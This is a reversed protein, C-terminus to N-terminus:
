SSRDPRRLVPREDLEKEVYKLADARRLNRLDRYKCGALTGIFYTSRVASAENAPKSAIHKALEDFASENPEFDVHMYAQGSMAVLQDIQRFKQFEEKVDKVNMRMLKAVM